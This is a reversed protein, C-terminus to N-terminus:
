LREMDYLRRTVQITSRLAVVAVGVTAAAAVLDFVLVTRGALTVVPRFFVVLNVLALLIRLETGGLAGFSIKFVGLAHTAFGMNITLFYYAILLAIALGPTVLSSAALGLMLFLTALADVMHDVYFGYRPRPRKRVRAVTGDLSDGLWNLVLCVNVAHLWHRSRPVLAYAAGGAAYAVLGLLTLHDPGIWSPLRGALFVLLRKEAAATLSTHERTTDLIGGGAPEAM